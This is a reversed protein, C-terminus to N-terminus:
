AGGGTASVSEEVREEGRITSFRWMPEGGSVSDLGAATELGPDEELAAGVEGAEELAESSDLLEGPPPLASESLFSIDEEPLEQEPDMGVSGGEYSITAVSGASESVYTYLWGPSNGGADLQPTAAAIAYLEADENWEVAREDAAEVNSLATTGGGSSTGEFVSPETPTDAESCGTAAVALFIVMFIKRM